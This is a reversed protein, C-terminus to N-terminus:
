ILSDILTPVTEYVYIMVVIARDDTGVTAADSLSGFMGAAHGLVPLSSLDFTPFDM